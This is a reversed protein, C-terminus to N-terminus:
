RGISGYTVKGAHLTARIELPQLPDAPLNFVVFDAAGGIELQGCDLSLLNAPQSSSLAVATELDIAGYHMARTVCGHLPLSAGALLEPQGAPVLKGSTLLEVEGLGTYYKGPPMGALGTIDSVLVCREPTKARLMTKVVSAPLHHGDVILSAMLRDDALQDWIYNPHRRIMPHAGNGLHTSMTAGADVAARIQESTASTHGIAVVVGTTAVKTIFSPSGEYEPSLTLLRIAGDAVEQLRSFEDWNPPRVHRLPHAGRPGDARSIYPGEMHIGPIRKAVDPRNRRAAAITAFSRNLVEYSDTTCTALLATVGFQDHALAVREVQEVSLDPSNFEVGGYGNVQLDALGPAIYPLSGQEDAPLISAVKGAELGIRVPRHTDFRRAVFSLM